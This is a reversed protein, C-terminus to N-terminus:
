ARSAMSTGSKLGPCSSSTPNSQSIRGSDPRPPRAGASVRARSARTQSRRATVGQSRARAAGPEPAAPDPAEPGPVDPEPPMPDPAELGYVDSEPAEPGFVEPM